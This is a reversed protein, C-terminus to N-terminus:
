KGAKRRQFDVVGSVHMLWDGLGPFLADMMFSFRLPRSNVIIEVKDNEIANVVAKVVQNPSCSGVIWPPKMGFRAFMGVKTVYGPFITSLHVGTDALELRLARTWIALGAKAGSYVSSYPAGSKAAISSINIIHGSKKTLMHPLVLKTLALPAMLNM